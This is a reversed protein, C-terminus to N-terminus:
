RSPSDGASLRSGRVFTALATIQDKTLKGGFRPMKSREGYLEPRSATEIIRSVYELSGRRYLNPADSDRGPEIEHCSDCNRQSYLAEGKRALTADADGPGSQAYVFETLAALEDPPVTVPKMGGKVPKKAAGMYLPSQPDQLFARIWARSNYDGLDPGEGGGQRTMAHCNACEERFLERVAFAPDNRFVATGGEPLVGRAALERALKTQKDVEARHRQYSADGQDKAVSYGGLGVAGALGACSLLLVPVRRRPDRSPGRDLFPLMVLFGAALGPILMTAVIELPGEFYMRLQYLPRAYWEPRAQYGSSPDAPGELAAGHLALVFGIVVALTLASAVADRFAQNPWYAETRSRSEASTLNWRPTLRHRRVLAIHLVVLGITLAPLIFVHVAFLHTVTYNGYAGGGQTVKEIAPGVLPTTGVVSSEVLKAWYGKQDWPLGYGSICFAVTLGLLALGAIWTGERPAKYAGAFLVQLLHLVSVVVMASSAFSHLGRVFWGMPLQDQIFVTSAWATQASPAYFFALLVGTCLEVALLFTLVAGLAYWWRAGGPVPDAMLATFAGGLGTREEVAAALRRLRTL